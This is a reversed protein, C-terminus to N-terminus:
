VEKVDPDREVKTLFRPGNSYVFTRLGPWCTKKFECYSCYTGLKENGSKGDPISRYQREPPRKQSVIMKKYKIIAPLNPPHADYVDLCIHGLQKDIAFFAVKDKVQLRPDDASAYLYSNIQTLYGFPDDEELLHNKFKNFAPSSASKVDVLVGDIIADRHGKVGDVELEDQEGEVTHGAERALFLLFHELIDGFLFKVRAEPPLPDAQGPENLQYWLKRECNTGLNSFRLAPREDGRFLRTSIIESLRNGFQDKISDLVNHKQGGILEYIDPVLTDITKSM